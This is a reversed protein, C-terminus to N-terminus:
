VEAIPCNLPAPCAVVISSDGTTYDWGSELASNTRIQQHWPQQAYNTDNVSVQNLYGIANPEVSTFGPVRKLLNEVTIADMGAPTRISFVFDTGLYKEFHVGPLVRTLALALDSRAETDWRPTRPIQEGMAQDITEVPQQLSVIWENAVARVTQGHWQVDAIDLGAASLMARPELSQLAVARLRISLTPFVNRNKM